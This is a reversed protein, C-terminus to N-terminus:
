DAVIYRIHGAFLTESLVTNTMCRLEEERVPVM